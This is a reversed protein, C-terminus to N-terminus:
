LNRYLIKLKNALPKFLLIAFLVGSFNALEDYIDGTREKMFLYQLLEMLVGFVVAIAFSILIQKTKLHTHSKKYGWLLFFMFGFYMAFHVIKDMHEFKSAIDKVNNFSASSLIIIIGAWVVAEWFNRLTKYM